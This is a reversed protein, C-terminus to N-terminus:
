LNLLVIACIGLVLAVYQQKSFRERYIAFSIVFTLIINVASSLPYLLSAPMRAALLVLTTNYAANLVGNSGGCVIADKVNEIKQGKALVFLIVVSLVLAIILSYAMLESQYEGPYAVQHAKQAVACMGNSIFVLVAFIVWKFTIKTKGKKHNILWISAILCVFGIITFIGIPEKVFIIGYLTPLMLSYALALVSLSLPGHKLAFTYCVGSAVYCVGYIVSYILTPMHFDLNGSVIFGKAIFFLTAVFCSFVNFVFPGIPNDKAKINFHKIAISQTVNAATGALLILYNM